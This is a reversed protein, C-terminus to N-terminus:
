GVICHIGRVRGRHFLPRLTFSVVRRWRTGFNPIRPSILRYGSRWVGERRASVDQRIIPVPVDLVLSVAFTYAMSDSRELGPVVFM